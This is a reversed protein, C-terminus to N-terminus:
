EKDYSSDEPTELGINGYGGPAGPNVDSGFGAGTEVPQGTKGGAFRAANGLTTWVAAETTRCQQAIEYVDMGKLAYHVIKSERGPLKEIIDPAQQLQKVLTQMREDSNQNM